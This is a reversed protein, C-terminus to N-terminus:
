RELNFAELFLIYIHEGTFFGTEIVLRVVGVLRIHTRRLGTGHRM